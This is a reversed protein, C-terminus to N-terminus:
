KKRPSPPGTPLMKGQLLPELYKFLEEVVSCSAKADQETPQEGRHVVRNRWNVHKQVRELFKGGYPIPKGLLVTILDRVVNNSPNCPRLREHIWDDLFLVGRADLLHTVLQETVVECATQALIIAVQYNKADLQARAATLLAQHYPPLPVNQSFSATAAAVFGRRRKENAGWVGTGPVSANV